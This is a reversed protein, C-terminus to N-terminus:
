RQQPRQREKTRRHERAIRVGSLDDLNSGEGRRRAGPTLDELNPRLGDRLLAVALELELEEPVALLAVFAGHDARHLGALEVARGDRGDAEALDVLGDERELRGAEEARPRLEVGGAVCHLTLELLAHRVCAEAEDAPAVDAGNVEHRLAEGDLKGVVDLSL